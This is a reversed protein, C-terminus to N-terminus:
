FLWVLFHKNTLGECTLATNSNSSESAQGLSACKLLASLSVRKQGQASPDFNENESGWPTCRHNVQYNHRVCAQPNGAEPDPIGKMKNVPKGGWQKYLLHICKVRNTKNIRRKLSAIFGLLFCDHACWKMRVRVASFEPDTTLGSRWYIGTHAWKGHSLLM